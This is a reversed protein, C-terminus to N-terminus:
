EAEKEAAELEAQKRKEEEEKIRENKLDIAEKVDDETVEEGNFKKLKLKELLILVEKKMGEGAAEEAPTGAVNLDSLKTLIQLNKIDALKELKSEKFNLVELSPLLPIKAFETIDNKSLNLNKLAPLNAMESISTINNQAMSLNVLRKMSNMTVSVIKNKNLNVTDLYPPCLRPV